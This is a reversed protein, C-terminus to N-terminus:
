VDKRQPNMLNIQAILKETLKAISEEDCLTPM